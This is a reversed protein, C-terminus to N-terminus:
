HFHFFIFFVSQLKLAQKVQPMSYDIPQYYLKSVDAVIGQHVHHEKYRDVAQCIMELGQRDLEEVRLGRERGEEALLRARQSGPNYYICHVTRRAARLCMKVPQIGYLAEGGELELYKVKKRSAKYKSSFQRCPSPCLESLLLSRRGLIQRLLKDFVM